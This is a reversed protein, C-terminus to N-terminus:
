GLVYTSSFSCPLCQRSAYRIQGDRRIAPKKLFRRRAEADSTYYNGAKLEDAHNEKLERAFKRSDVGPKLRVMYGGGVDLPLAERPSFITLAVSQFPDPRVDEVVGAVKFDWEGPQFDEINENLYHGIPNPVSPFM